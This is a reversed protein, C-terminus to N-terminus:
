KLKANKIRGSIKDAFPHALEGVSGAYANGWFEARITDKNDFVKEGNEDRLWYHIEATERGSGMGVLMRKARNGPRWAIVEGNLTYVHGHASTPVEPAVDYEAGAKANMEAVTQRQMDKMDYPWSVAKTTVFANVVIIPKSPSPASASKDQAPSEAPKAQPQPVAPKDQAPTAASKDQGAMSVIGLVLSVFAVFCARKM